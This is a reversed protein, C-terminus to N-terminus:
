IGMRVVLLLRRFPVKPFAILRTENQAAQEILKIELDVTGNIDLNVGTWNKNSIPMPWNSPHAQTIVSYLVLVTHTLSPLWDVILLCEVSSCGAQRELSGM